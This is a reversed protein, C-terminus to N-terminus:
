SDEERNEEAEKKRYGIRGIGFYNSPQTLYAFLLILNDAFIKNM